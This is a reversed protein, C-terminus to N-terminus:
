FVIKTLHVCSNRLCIQQFKDSMTTIVLYSIESFLVWGYDIDTYTPLLIKRLKQQLFYAFTSYKLITDLHTRQLYYKQNKMTHFLKSNLAQKYAKRIKTIKNELEIKSYRLQFDGFPRITFEYKWKSTDLFVLFLDKKWM